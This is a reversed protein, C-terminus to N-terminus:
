RILLKVLFILILVYAAVVFVIKAVFFATIPRVLGEDHDLETDESVGADEKGRYFRYWTFWGVCYHLMDCTLSLVILIGAAILVPSITPEGSVDKKFLWILAIGAFALQRNLDSAKGSFVYSDNRYDQLKM